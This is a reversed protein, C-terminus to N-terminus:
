DKPGQGSDRKLDVERQEEEDERRSAHRHQIVEEIVPGLLLTAGILATAADAEETRGQELWIGLEPDAALVDVAGVVHSPLPPMETQIAPDVVYSVQLLTEALRSEHEM